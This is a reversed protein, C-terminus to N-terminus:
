TRDSLRFGGPPPALRGEDILRFYRVLADRYGRAIADQVNDRALWQAEVANSLFLSEGLVAPMQVARSTSAGARPPGLVFIPFARGQFIRFQSDEKLGRDIVPYGTARIAAVLAGQVHEALARNYAAWPRRGDWWTETGSDGPNPSGNNHISLYVDAGALNAIDIRAQLDARTPRGSTDRPADPPPTARRDGDRALLVTYGERELLDRLKRAIRLNVDKEAVGAGAAGVEDGGHGPDLAVVRSRGEAPRFPHLATVAVPAPEPPTAEVSPVAAAPTAGARRGRGGRATAAAHRRAASRDARRGHGTARGAPHARVGGGGPAASSRRLRRRAVSLYRSRRGDATRPLADRTM